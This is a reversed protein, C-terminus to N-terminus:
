LAIDFCSVTAGTVGSPGTIALGSPGSPGVCTNKLASNTWSQTCPNGVPHGQRVKRVSMVRLGPIVKPGPTGKLDRM